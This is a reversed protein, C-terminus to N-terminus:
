NGEFSGHLVHWCCGLMFVLHFCPPCRSLFVSFCTFRLSLIHGSFCHSPSFGHESASLATQEPSRQQQLMADVPGNLPTVWAHLVTSLQCWNELSIVTIIVSSCHSILLFTPQKSPARVRKLFSRTKKTPSAWSMHVRSMSTCYLIYVWESNTTM